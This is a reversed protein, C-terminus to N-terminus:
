PNHEVERVYRPYTSKARRAVALDIELSLYPAKSTTVGMVEGEEPEVIWGTGGFACGSALTGALNSSLSFAGSVVAATRGGALWKGTSTAPTARPSVLIDVGQRGYRHAHRGFWLETCILFGVNGWATTAADFARPGPHYWSAEWFFAEDPLYAKTHASRYGSVASWLFGENYRKGDSIVPRTGVVLGAGLETLRPMWRDHSAVAADWKALDDPKQAPLWPGFPMEPLVLLDSKEARVHSVLGRWDTELEIPTNRLQCVTVKV